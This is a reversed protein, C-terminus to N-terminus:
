SKLETLLPIMTPGAALFGLGRRPPMKIGKCVPQWIPVGLLIIDSRVPNSETGGTSTVEQPREGLPRVVVKDKARHSLFVDFQFEGPM